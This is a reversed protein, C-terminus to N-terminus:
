PKTPNALNRAFQLLQENTFQWKLHLLREAVEREKFALAAVHVILRQKALPPLPIDLETLDSREIIKVHSGKRRSDFHAAAKPSRLFWALYEPVVREQDPRLKFFQQGVITRPEDLRFAHATTRTGRNPFLVDGKRLWLEQKVTENPEIRLFDHTKM